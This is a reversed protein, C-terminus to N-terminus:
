ILFKCKIFWNTAADDYIDRLPKCKAIHDPAEYMMCDEFRARLISLIDSDVMKDRRWQADAEFICVYDDTICQDVTPVRRFKEHYWPYQQQNPTVITELTKLFILIPLHNFLLDSKIDFDFCIFFVESGLLLVM